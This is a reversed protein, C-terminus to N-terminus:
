HHSGCKDSPLSLIPLNKRKRRRRVAAGGGGGRVATQGHPDWLVLIINVAFHLCPLLASFIQVNQLIGRPTCVDTQLFASVGVGSIFGSVLVQIRTCNRGHVWGYMYQISSLAQMFYFFDLAYCIGTTCTNVKLM